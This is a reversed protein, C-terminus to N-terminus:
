PKKIELKQISSSVWDSIIKRDADSIKTGSHMITYRFPPMEDKDVQEGIAKLDELPEGHGSFPFDNTMDLHEKAESVDSAILQKVGPISSYWPYQTNSSHCDFCSKQFIPKVSEVYTENIEKFTDRPTEETKAEVHAKQHHNQHSSAYNAMFVLLLSTGCKLVCRNLKM